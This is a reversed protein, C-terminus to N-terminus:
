LVHRVAQELDFLPDRERNGPPASWLRQEAIRVSLKGWARWPPLRGLIRHATRTRPPSKSAEACTLRLPGM